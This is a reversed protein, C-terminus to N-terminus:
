ERYGGAARTFWPRANFGGGQLSTHIDIVTFTFRGDSVHDGIGAEDTSGTDASGGSDLGGGASAAIVVAVGVAVWYWWRQWVPKKNVAPSQRATDPRM